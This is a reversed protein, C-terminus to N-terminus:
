REVEEVTLDVAHVCDLYRILNTYHADEFNITCTNIDKPVIYCLYGSQATISYSPDITIINKLEPEVINFDSFRHKSVPSYAVNDAIIYPIGFIEATEDSKLSYFAHNEGDSKASVKILLLAHTEPILASISSDKFLLAKSDSVNVSLYENVNFETGATHDVIEVDNVVQLDVTPKQKPVGSMILYLTFPGFIFAVLLIVWLKLKSAVWYSLTKGPNKISQAETQRKIQQAERELAIEIQNIDPAAGCFPCKEHEDYNWISDCYLCRIETKDASM